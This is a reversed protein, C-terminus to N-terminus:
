PPGPMGLKPVRKGEDSGRGRPSLSRPVSTKDRGRSAAGLAEAPPPSRHREIKSWLTCDLRSPFTSPRVEVCPSASPSLSRRRTSVWPQSNLLAGTFAAPHYRKLWCSVYRADRTSSAIGPLRVLRLRPNLYIQARFSRQSRAREHRRDGSGFQRAAKRRWAAMSTAIPRRRASCPPLSRSSM